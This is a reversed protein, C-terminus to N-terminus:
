EEPNINRSLFAELGIRKLGPEITHFSAYHDDDSVRIADKKVAITAIIVDIAPIPSGKERLKAAYEISKAYMDHSPM